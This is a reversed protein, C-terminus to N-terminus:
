APVWRGGQIFGHHGCATCLVSPSLTLPELQVITWASSGDLPIWSGRDPGCGPHRYDLGVLKGALDPGAGAGHVVRAITVGHGIDVPESM